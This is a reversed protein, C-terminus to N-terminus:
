VEKHEKGWPFNRRGNRTLIIAPPQYHTGPSPVECRALPCSFAVALRPDAFRAVLRPVVPQDHVQLRISLVLNAYNTSHYKPGDLSYESRKPHLFLCLDDHCRM